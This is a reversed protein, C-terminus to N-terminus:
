AWSRADASCRLPTKRLGLALSIESGIYFIPLTVGIGFVVVAIRFGGITAHDPVRSRTHDCTTEPHAKM